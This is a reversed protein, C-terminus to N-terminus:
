LFYVMGGTKQSKEWAEIDAKYPSFDDNSFTMSEGGVSHATTGESGIRNFRAISVEVVIFDLENPVEDVGLLNKLREQTLSVITELVPNDGVLAKVTGLTDTM